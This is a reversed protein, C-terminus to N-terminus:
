HISNFLQELGQSVQRQPKRPGGREAQQVGHALQRGDQAARDEGAEHADGLDDGDQQRENREDAAPQHRELQGVGALFDELSFMM